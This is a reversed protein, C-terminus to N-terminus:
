VFVRAPQRVPGNDVTSLGQRIPGPHDIAYVAVAYAAWMDNGFGHFFGPHAKTGKGFNPEGPAFRDALARRVDTDNTTARGTVWTKITARKTYRPEGVGERILAEHFRGSWLATNLVNDSAVVGINSLQEMAVHDIRRRNAHIWRLLDHNYIKDAELPRYSEDVLVFGTYVDGPDIALLLGKPTNAPPTTTRPMPMHRVM